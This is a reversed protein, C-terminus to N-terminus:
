DGGKKLTMDTLVEVLAEMKFPKALYGNMGADTARRIDEEYRDASLALIPVTKADPRELRRITESAAIGDMVPMHMDMLIVTFTNPPHEQFLEVAAQGEKAHIVRMGNEELIEQIIEANLENDEALLVSRGTLALKRIGAKERYFRYLTNLLIDVNIPKSLHANM